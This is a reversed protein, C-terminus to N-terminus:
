RARRDSRTLREHRRALESTLFYTGRVGAARLSDLAFKANGFQDEVDQALVAAAVAGRPWPDVDAVPLRATWAVANRVLLQAIARDWPLEAIRTLEFSLYAVRARGYRSRVVAGDLLPVGRAPEPRLTFSSFLADRGM